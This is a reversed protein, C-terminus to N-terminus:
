KRPKTIARTIRTKDCLKYILSFFFSAHFLMSTKAVLLYSLTSFSKCISIIHLVMQKWKLAKKKKILVKPHQDENFFRSDLLVLLSVAVCVYPVFSSPM